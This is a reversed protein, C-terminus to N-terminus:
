YLRHMRQLALGASNTMIEWSSERQTLGPQMRMEQAPHNCNYIVLGGGMCSKFEPPQFNATADVGSRRYLMM